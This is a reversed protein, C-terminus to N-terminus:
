PHITRVDNTRPANLAKSQTDQATAMSGSVQDWLEELGDDGGFEDEEIGTKPVPGPSKQSNQDVITETLGLGDEDMQAVLEEFDDAGFNDDDSGSSKDFSQQLDSAETPEVAMPVALFEDDFLDDGYDSSGDSLTNVAAAHRNTAEKPLATLSEGMKTRSREQEPLIDKRHEAAVSTPLSFDELKNFRSPLPSSSSPHQERVQPGKKLSEQIKEMLLNVRSSGVAKSSLITERPQALVDEAHQLAETGDLRMRKAKSMPWEIGCSMAKRLGKKSSTTGPTQPSSSVINAFAGFQRGEGRQVGRIDAYRNWLDLAPDTQPTKLLQQMGGFNFSSPAEELPFNTSKELQSLAPSSSRARKKGRPQSSNAPDSSRPGAQWYVHDDPTVDQAPRNLAEETNGILDALPIRHVPTQPCNRPLDDTTSDEQQANPKVHQRNKNDESTGDNNEKGSKGSHMGNEFSKTATSTKYEFGKLKKRTQSSVAPDTSAM